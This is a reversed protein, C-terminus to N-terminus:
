NESGKVDFTGIWQANRVRANDDTITLILDHLLHLTGFNDEKYYRSRLHVCSCQLAFMRHQLQSCLKQMFQVTYVWVAGSFRYLSNLPSSPNKILIFRKHEFLKLKGLYLKAITSLRSWM